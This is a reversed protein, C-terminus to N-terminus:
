DLDCGYTYIISAAKKFNLNHLRRGIDFQFATWPGKQDVMLIDAPVDALITEEGDQLTFTDIDKSAIWTMCPISIEIDESTDQYVDLSCSVDVDRVSVGSPRFPVQYYDKKDTKTQHFPYGNIEFVSACAPAHVIFKGSDLLPKCELINATQHCKLKMIHKEKHQRKHSTTSSRRLVLFMTIILSLTICGQVIIKRRQHLKKVLTQKDCLMSHEENVDPLLTHQEASNM